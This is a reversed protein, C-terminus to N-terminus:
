DVEELEEEIHTFEAEIRKLDDESGQSKPGTFWHRASLLWYTGAFVLVVGVAIPAYNFNDHNITGFGVEPLMFLVAIFAVWVIGAWGVVASWRGLSWEGGEWSKGRLRRLLTPLVYAIYLGITAISTVAAYAVGSWLSPIALIFAFTVCFWISNTPTRTRPNIRHWLRHGPVAGDRSFAYLMRSNATVSAMGCFAQAVVAILLLLEAGVRSLAATWIAVPAATNAATAAYVAPNTPIVSTIALILIWGAILSIVISSVIGRPAALSASHTEESMHASADYGTFTYQAMLLGLMFVYIPVGLTTQNEFKTFIFSASAHHSPVFFLVVAIVLVGCVHWWASVDSLLSVLRVGFTNLVGHVILIGAYVILIYGVTDKYGMTLNLFVSFFTAFGYDIGATIAVQGLLNFWGTFWSWIGPNEPALKAAWYYLGGATPYASAIEAMGLGVITTMIGVIIWGWVIDVPGGYEMGFYYLTLCGSLVSIITFSVAFNSFGSMRRRLEQAYGLAHLKAVDADQEAGGVPQLPITAM